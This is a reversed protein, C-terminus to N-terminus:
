SPSPSPKISRRIEIEERIYKSRLRGYFHGGCLAGVWSFPIIQLYGGAYTGFAPYLVSPARIREEDPGHLDLYDFAEQTAILEQALNVGPLSGVLAYTGKWRQKEFDKAHGGEHLAISVDDSYLYITNSFPNYYDSFVLGGLLRGSASTIFSFPIALIRYLLGVEKNTIIRAVEQFPASQNIRIKVKTLHHEEFFNVLSAETEHSIKHTGYHSNWLLLKIPSALLSALGDLPPLPTGHEIDLEIREDGHPRMPNEFRLDDVEGALLIGPSILVFSILLVSHFIKRM